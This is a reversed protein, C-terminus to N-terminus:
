KGNPNFGMSRNLFNGMLIGIIGWNFIAMVAMELGMSRRRIDVSRPVEVADDGNGVAGPASTKTESFRPFTLILWLSCRFEISNLSVEHPNQM